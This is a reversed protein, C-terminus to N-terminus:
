ISKANDEPPAYSPLTRSCPPVLSTRERLRNGKCEGLLPSLAWPELANAQQFLEGLLENGSLGRRRRMDLAASPEVGNRVGARGSGCLPQVCNVVCGGRTLGVVRASGIQYSSTFLARLGGSVTRGVSARVAAFTVYM